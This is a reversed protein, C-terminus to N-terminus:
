IVDLGGIKLACVWMMDEKNAGNIGIIELNTVAGIGVHCRMHNVDAVTM